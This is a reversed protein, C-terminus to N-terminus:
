KTCSLASKFCTKRACRTKEMMRRLEPRPCLRLWLMELVLYTNDISAQWVNGDDLKSTDIDYGMLFFEVMRGFLSTRDHYRHHVRRTVLAEDEEVGNYALDIVGVRWSRYLCREKISVLHACKESYYGAVNKRRRITM